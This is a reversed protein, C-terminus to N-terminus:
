FNTRTHAASKLFIDRIAYLENLAQAIQMRETPSEESCLLGIKLVSVISELEYKRISTGDQFGDEESDDEKQLLLSPDVSDMAREPLADAVFVHLNLGGNFMEDTPRRGTFMELLVIGYSYVDGEVSVQNAM